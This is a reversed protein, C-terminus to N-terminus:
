LASVFFFRLIREALTDDLTEAQDKPNQSDSAKSREVATFKVTLDDGLVTSEPDPAGIARCAEIIKRIGRGWIM